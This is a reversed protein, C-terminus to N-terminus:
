MERVWDPRKRLHYLMEGAKPVLLVGKMKATRSNKPIFQRRIAIALILEGGDEVVPELKCMCKGGVWLIESCHLSHIPLLWKNMSVPASRNVTPDVIWLSWHQATPDASGGVV